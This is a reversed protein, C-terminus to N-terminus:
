GIRISTESLYEYPAIVLNRPAPGRRIRGSTDYHSGHCPCFWGGYDGEAFTPVCGLHTCAAQLIIYAPKGEAGTEQVIRTADTAPDKLTAYDDRQAASVEEPTRHRVFVPKGQWTVVLQQGTAVKSLDVETTSLARTDAAPNMQDILPWVVALIGVAGAAGSAIFIFDRRTGDSQAGDTHNATTEAVNTERDWICAPSVERPLSAIVPAQNPHTAYRRVLGM